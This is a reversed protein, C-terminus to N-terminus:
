LGREETKIIVVRVGDPPGFLVELRTTIWGQGVQVGYGGRITM